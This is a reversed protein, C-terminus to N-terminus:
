FCLYARKYGIKGIACNLGFGGLMFTMNNAVGQLAKEVSEVKKNIM